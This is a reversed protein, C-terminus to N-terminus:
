SRRTGLTLLAASAAPVAVVYSDGAPQIAASRAPGALSGTDTQSGFSQGGLTVGASAALRPAELREVTAAGAAGPVRVSVVRARASDDNILVVRIRGDAGETAWTKVRGPTAGSVGLLRSGPPTAQAFMLLGYYEPAVSARRRGGIHSFRFLEYGAGPFTHINVGDIGARAMEFLADLAWLASAFTDSVAADAGCSVTNLEDVRLRLGREHAIAIYPAFSNALGRSAGASLLHAITPYESSRPNAFCLQLPYRHLTVLKVQPEAVLFQTLQALWRSEGTTPGALPVDPLASAFQAYDHIFATFDYSAPRGPVGHGDATRYWPFSAYLEPENGLELAQVSGAGIGTLLAQAEAAALGPSDAELNVGLILKAQLATTLARMVQVWRPGLTFTVGPPRTAGAVPWWTSDASDGGIRLVPAQSPALNRILQEFVPDIHAPDTGAYAEIAPYELSLGLFGNPLEPGPAVSGGVLVTASPRLAPDPGSSTLGLIAVVVGVVTVVAIDALLFRRNAATRMVRLKV